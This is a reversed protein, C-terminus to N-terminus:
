GAGRASGRAGRRRVPHREDDAGVAQVADGSVKADVQEPILTSRHGILRRDSQETRNATSLELENPAATITYERRTQRVLRDEIGDQTLFIGLLDDATPVRFIGCGSERPEHRTEPDAGHKKRAVVHLAHAAPHVQIGASSRSSNLRFMTPCISTM